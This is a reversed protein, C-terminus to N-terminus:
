TSVNSFRQASVCNESQFYLSPWIRIYQFLKLRLPLDRRMGMSKKYRCSRLSVFFIYSDFYIPKLSIEIFWFSLNLPVRNVHFFEFSFRRIARTGKKCMTIRNPNETRAKLSAASNKTSFFKTACEIKDSASHALSPETLERREDHRSAFTREPM